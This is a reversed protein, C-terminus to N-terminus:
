LLLKAEDPMEAFTGDQEGSFAYYWHHNEGGTIWDPVGDPYMKRLDGATYGAVGASPAVAMDLGARICCVVPSVFQDYDRDRQRSTRDEWYHPDWGDEHEKCLDGVCLPHDIRGYYDLHYPSEPPYPDSRDWNVILVREADSLCEFFHEVNAEIEEADPNRKRKFCTRAMRLSFDKWREYQEHTIM